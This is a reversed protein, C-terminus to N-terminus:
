RLWYPGMHKATLSLCSENNKQDLNLEAISSKDESSSSLM